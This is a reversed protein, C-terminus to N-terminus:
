SQNTMLTKVSWRIILYIGRVPYVLLAIILGIKIHANESQAFRYFANRQGDAKKLLDNRQNEIKLKKRELEYSM